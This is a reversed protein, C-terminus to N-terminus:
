GQKAAGANQCPKSRLDSGTQNKQIRPTKESGANGFSYTAKNPMAKM